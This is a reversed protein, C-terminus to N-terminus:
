RASPQRPSPKRAPRKAPKKNVQVVPPNAVAARIIRVLAQLDIKNVPVLALREVDDNLEPGLHGSCLIIPEVFDASRLREAVAIGTLGPMVQDLVLVDPRDAKQLHELCQEGSTVLECTWGELDFLTVLFGGVDVDDDCVLVRM